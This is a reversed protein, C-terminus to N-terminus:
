ARLEASALVDGHADLVVARSIESPAVPLRVGWVSPGSGVWFSGVVVHRGDTLVAECTVQQDWGTGSLSMLLWPEDGGSVTVHGVRTGDYDLSAVHIAGSAEAPRPAPGGSMVGAGIAGGAVVLVVAAAVALARRRWRRGIPVVTENVGMRELARVEFGAPPEVGGSLGLLADATEAYQELDIRCNPCAALHELLETRAPGSLTGTAFLVLDEGFPECDPRTGHESM